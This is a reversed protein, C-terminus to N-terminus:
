SSLKTMLDKLDTLSVDTVSQGSYKKRYGYNNDMHVLYDPEKSPNSTYASSEFKGVTGEAYINALVGAVFAPEYGSNILASGMIVLTNKKSSYSTSQELRNMMTSTTVNVLGPRPKTTNSVSPLPNHPEPHTNSKIKVM